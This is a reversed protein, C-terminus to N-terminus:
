KKPRLWGWMNKNGFGYYDGISIVVGPVASDKYVRSFHLRKSLDEATGSFSVFCIKPHYHTYAAGDVELIRELLKDPDKPPELPVVAYRM